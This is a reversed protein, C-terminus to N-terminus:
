RIQDLRGFLVLENTTMLREILQYYLNAESEIIEPSTM